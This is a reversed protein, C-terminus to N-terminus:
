KLIYEIELVPSSPGTRSSFRKATISDSEDGILIWGYNSHTGNIWSQVDANLRSGSWTYQGPDRVISSASPEIEFDGGRKTWAHAPHIRNKWTADLGQIPGGAGEGQGGQSSGESWESTLRFLAVQFAGQRARDM